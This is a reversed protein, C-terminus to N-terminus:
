SDHHIEKYALTINGEWYKNLYVCGMQFGSQPFSKPTNLLLIERIGFGEGNIDRIRAKLWIHNIPIFLVINNAIYMCHKIFNRMQSYPPNTIIWDVKDTYDFFDKGELIECYDLRSVPYKEHEIYDVLVRYWIGDGRCPELISGTPLFHNTIEIAFNEPTQVCDNTKCNSPILKRM